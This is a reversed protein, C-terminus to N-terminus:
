LGRRPERVCHSSATSPRHSRGGTPIRLVIESVPRVSNQDILTDAAAKTIERLFQAKWYFRHGEAVLEIRDAAWLQQGLARNDASGGIKVTM